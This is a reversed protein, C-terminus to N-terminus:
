SCSGAAHKDTFFRLAMKDTNQTAQLSNGTMRLAQLVPAGACKGHDNECVSVSLVINKWDTGVFAKVAKLDITFKAITGPGLLATRPVVVFKEYAKSGKDDSMISAARVEFLFQSGNLKSSLCGGDLGIEMDSSETSAGSRTPENNQAAHRIPFHQYLIGCLVIGATM